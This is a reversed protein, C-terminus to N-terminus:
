RADRPRHGDRANRRVAHRGSREDGPEAPGTRDTGFRGHYAYGRGLPPPPADRGRRDAPPHSSRDKRRYRERGRAEPDRDAEPQLRSAGADAKGCSPLVDHYEDQLFEGYGMIATLINNFEHSIGGTLMGVVELKQSHRLQEEMKRKETIDRSMSLMLDRDIQSDHLPVAYSEFFKRTGKLGVMGFELSSKEGACVRGLFSRMAERSDDTVLPFISKGIVADKSEAEIMELGAPNMDLLTGDPAVLKICEPANEIISKLYEQSSVLQEETHARQAVESQLEKNASQLQVTREGVREELQDNLVSIEKLMKEMPRFATKKLTFWLIGSMVATFFLSLGVHQFVLARYQSEVSSLDKGAYLTVHGNQYPVDLSLRFVDDFNGNRAFSSIVFGSGAVAKLEVIDPQSDAWSRLGGEVTAYDHKLLAEKMLAGLLALENRTDDKMQRLMTSRQVTLFGIDGVFLFFLIVSLFSVLARAHPGRQRIKMEVRRWDSHPIMHCM